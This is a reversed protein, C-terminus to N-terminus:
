KCYPTNKQSVERNGSLGALGLSVALVLALVINVAAMTKNFTTGTTFGGSRARMRIFPQDEEDSGEM